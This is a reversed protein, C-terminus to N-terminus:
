TDADVLARAYKRHVGLSRLLRGVLREAVAAPQKLLESYSATTAQRYDAADYRPSPDGTLLFDHVPLGQVGTAGVALVWTGLYGAQEAAAATVAVFQRAYTIVAAPMLIQSNGPPDAYPDHRSDSLRGMFVRLGGEEDVEFEVIKEDSRGGIVTPCRDSTLKSSLAVGTSRLAFDTAYSLSPSFGGANGAQLAKSVEPADAHGVLDRLRSRSEDGHVLDLLMGTRGATPEALVFLHAQERIEAPVPDREFQQQLKLLGHEETVRRQEHLRRVEPDSLYQKTKDGRGLYRHEVMHPATGSPPIHVILYGRSPDQSSPISRCLVALPPDPVTRAVQEIREALGALPQPSLEFTQTQKDEGIGIIYTGSDVAFSTLDRALEKNASKGASLERKLDLYHTEELLGQQLADDLDAESRPAWRPSRPSLYVSQSQSEIM